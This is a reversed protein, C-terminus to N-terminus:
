REEGRKQESEKKTRSHVISGIYRVKIQLEVRVEIYLPIEAVYFETRNCCLLFFSQLTTTTKHHACCNQLLLLLCPTKERIMDLVYQTDSSHLISLLPQNTALILNHLPLQFHDFSTTFEDLGTTIVGPIFQRDRLYFIFRITYVNAM